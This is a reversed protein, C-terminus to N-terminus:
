ADRVRLVTWGGLLAAAPWALLVVVNRLTENAPNTTLAQAAISPLYNYLDILWQWSPGGFTFLSMVIPLVFLIGVTAAIAGAGNRILFGSGLGLLGFTAMSVVAYALPIWTLEANGWDFGNEGYVPTVVLVSILSTVVTTAILTAAVILAKALLVAGRRPEATLSSRIMGTSYEGTIAMAGLIGAVLMTFQLPSVVAMTPNTAMRGPADPLSNMIVAILLSIGVALLVTVALSWWTSRLTFLKIAESRMLRLFGLRYTSTSPAAMSPASARSETTVSM